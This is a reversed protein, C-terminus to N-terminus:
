DELRAYQEDLSLDFDFVILVLGVRMPVSVKVGFRATALQLYARIIVIEHMLEGETLARTFGHHEAAAHDNWTAAKLRASFPEASPDVATPAETTASM